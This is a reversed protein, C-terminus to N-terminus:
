HNIGQQYQGAAVKPDVVNVSIGSGLEFGARHVLRPIIRLYWNPGHYIYYNFPVDRDSGPQKMAGSQSFKSIIFGLTRQLLSALDMTEPDTISGFTEGASKKPAVWVEYPWQSFSPCYLTFGATETIVNAVPERPVDELKVDSPVVVLQSHPHKISAGAHIDHNNFILVSGLKQSQYYLYRQRYVQLVLSVQSLPLDVMGRNHDPSHLIVEHFATLPFKNAIVRVRWNADGLIGGIRFVEHNDKEAGPCFPCRLETPKPFPTNDHPRSVRSPAILVWRNTKSDPVFRAM